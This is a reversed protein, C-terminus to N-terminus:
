AAGPRILSAASWFQPRLKLLQRIQSRNLSLRCTKSAKRATPRFGGSGSTSARGTWAAAACAESINGLTEAMELVSLRQRAVKMAANKEVIKEAM